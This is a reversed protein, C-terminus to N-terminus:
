MTASHSGNVSQQELNRLEKGRGNVEVIFLIYFVLATLGVGYGLCNLGFAGTILVPNPGPGSSGVLAALQLGFAIIGLVIQVPPGCAFFMGKFRGCDGRDIGRSQLASALGGSVRSVVFFAWVLNFLPILLMWVLGPEMRRHEPPISAAARYILYLMWIGLGLLILFGLGCGFIFFLGFVENDNV